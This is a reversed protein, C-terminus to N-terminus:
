ASSPMRSEEVDRPSPSTYLLCIKWHQVQGVATPYTPQHFYSGRSQQKAAYDQVALLHHREEHGPQNCLKCKVGSNAAKTHCEASEGRVDAAKQPCVISYHDNGMTCHACQIANGKQGAKGSSGVKAKPMVPGSGDVLMLSDYQARGTADIDRERGLM